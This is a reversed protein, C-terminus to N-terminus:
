LAVMHDVAKKILEDSLDSRGGKAPMVGKTGNFGGIAHKYLTEKGQAIRPAWAAKDGAKPAGAIGEGHCAKCVAEFTSVGDTPMAAAVVPGAAASPKIELGTNDQGAVAVKVPGQTRSQVSDLYRADEQVRTVQEVKGVHRALAFMCIAFAVLIGLVVSFINFFHTDQKSV